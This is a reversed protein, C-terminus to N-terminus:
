VHSIPSTRGIMRPMGEKTTMIYTKDRQYMTVDASVSYDVCTILIFYMGVGHEVYDAAM